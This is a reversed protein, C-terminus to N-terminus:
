CVTQGVAEAAAEALNGVLISHHYTGPAELMMRRLLPHNSQFTRIISHIIYYWLRKRFVAASWHCRHICLHWKICGSLQPCNVIAGRRLLGLVIMTLFNIGGVIFGARMLDGRQSVRSVSFIATLGSAIALVAMNFSFDNVVGLVVALVITAMGAVRSDILLTLLLGALATPHLYSAEPWGILTFLKSIFAVALLISGLLALLGENRFIDIRNQYLFVGMSAALFVLLVLGVLVGYDMGTKIM